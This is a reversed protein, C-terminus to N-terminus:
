HGGKALNSTTPEHPEFIPPDTRGQHCNGCSVLAAYRSDDLQALYKTNIEELMTIMVRATQKRPNDDSVYDAKHTRPDQTHCYDCSVGLDQNYENMLDEIEAASLTQSLVRLNTMRGPLATADTNRSTPDRACLDKAITSLFAGVVVAYILRLRM